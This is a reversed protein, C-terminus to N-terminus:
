CCRSGAQGMAVVTRTMDSGVGTSAARDAESRPGSAEASLSDRCVPADIQVVTQAADRDHQDHQGM